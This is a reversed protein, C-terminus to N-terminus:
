CAPQTTFVLQSAWRSTKSFVLGVRHNGFELAADAPEGCRASFSLLFNPFRDLSCGIRIWEGAVSSQLEALKQKFLSSQPMSVKGLKMHIVFFSPAIAMLTSGDVKQQAFAPALLELGNRQLWSGVQLISWSSPSPSHGDDAPPPAPVPLHGAAVVSVLAQHVRHCDGLPLDLVSIVDEVVSVEGLDAGSLQNPPASVNIAAFLIQVDEAAWSALPKACAAREWQQLQNNLANFREQAAQLAQLAKHTAAERQSRLELKKADFKAHVQALAAELAEQISKEQQKFNADVAQLNSSAANLAQQAAALQRPLADAPRNHTLRYTELGLHSNWSSPM